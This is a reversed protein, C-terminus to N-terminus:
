FGTIGCLGPWAFLLMCIRGGWRWFLKRAARGCQFELCPHNFVVVVVVTAVIKARVVVFFVVIFDMLSLILHHLIQQFFILLHLFLELMFPQYTM